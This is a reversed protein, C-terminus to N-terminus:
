KMSHGEAFFVVGTQVVPNLFLVKQALIIQECIANFDRNLLTDLCEVLVSKPGQVVSGDCIDGLKAPTISFLWNVDAIM